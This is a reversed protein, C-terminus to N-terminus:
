ADTGHIRQFTKVMWKFRTVVHVVSLVVLVLALKDHVEVLSRRSLENGGLLLWSAMATLLTPIYVLFLWYSSAIRGRYTKDFLRRTTSAIFKSHSVCHVAIGALSVVALLKHIGLWEPRNFGMVYSADPLHHMHYEIQLILGTAALLVFPIFNLANVRYNFLATGSIKNDRSM